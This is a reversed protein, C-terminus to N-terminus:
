DFLTKNKIKPLMYDMLALIMLVVTLIRYDGFILHYLKLIAGIYLLVVWALKLYDLRKKIPKKTFHLVYVCVIGVCGVIIIMNNFPWHMIKFVTGVLILVFMGMVIRSYVTKIFTGNHLLLFMGGMEILWIGITLLFDSNAVSTFNLLFVSTLSMLIGLIILITLTQNNSM